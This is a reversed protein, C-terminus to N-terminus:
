GRRRGPMTWLSRSTRKWERELDDLDQLGDAKGSGYNPSQLLSVSREAKARLVKVEAALSSQPDLLVRRAATEDTRMEHVAASWCPIQQRLRDSVDLMNRSTLWNAKSRLRCWTVDLDSLWHQCSVLSAPPKMPQLVEFLADQRDNAM